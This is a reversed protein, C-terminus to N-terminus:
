YQRLPIPVVPFQTRLRGDPWRVPAAGRLGNALHAFYLFLRSDGLRCRVTGPLILQDGYSDRDSRWTDGGAGRKSSFTTSGTYGRVVLM